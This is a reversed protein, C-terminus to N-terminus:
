RGRNNYRARKRNNNYGGGGGRGRRDYDAMYSLGSPTDNNQDEFCAEAISHTETAQQQVCTNQSSSDLLNSPLTPLLKM